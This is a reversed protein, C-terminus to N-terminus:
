RKKENKNEELWKILENFAEDKGPDTQKIRKLHFVCIRVIEKATEAFDANDMEPTEQYFGEIEFDNNKNKVEKTKKRPKKKKPNTEELFMKMAGDLDEGSVLLAIEGLAKKTIKIENDLIQNRIENQKEKFMSAVADVSSAFKANNRVTKETVGTEVAIKEGTKTISPGTDHNALTSIKEVKDFDSKNSKGGIGRPNHTSGKQAGLDNKLVNYHFGRLYQIQDPKLNRRGIQNKAMWAKVHDKDKLSVVQVEYKINHKKCIELRTHGDILVNEEKWVTLPHLVGDRLIQEELVMVEEESPRKIFTKFEDRIEFELGL